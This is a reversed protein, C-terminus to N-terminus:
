KTIVLRQHTRNTDSIVSLFYLGSPLDSVNLQHSKQNVFEEHILIGEISLLQLVSGNLMEGAVNVMDKTPNPFVTLKSSKNLDDVSVHDNNFNFTPEMAVWPGTGNPLRGFSVDAVQEGFSISDIIGQNEYSLILTEGFTSSLQFNAHDEGEEGEEDAWIIMYGNPEITANPLEWKDLNAITDTLYLNATSIPFQTTNFLEIWDDFNGNGDAAVSENLASIENIVLDGPEIFSNLEYYEYAAREPSFRGASDNQAYVYYHLDNGIDTLTVGYTGDGSGGDNQTGDDFMSATSFPGTGGYRYALYVEQEDVLEATISVSGGLSINSTSPLVNSISPAGPFGTYTSLYVNRADMLDTLGPYNILDTVTSNLNNQFDDYGYFKNTDNLVSQDILNQLEAGRTAYLQNDFNEDMITRMHALYMRKYTDNEFLIRMLPREYVSVSNLHLLPDMTKAEDITFGDWHESADALRYSAFSMNLDWLIPQFHGHGDQYVYYNQAYGVYSDFNIVSYNFAHMWLTRDVNLLAEIETPHENLTDILHYLETWGNDSKLDYFSYYASSDTGFSNGLNANEGDFDLAAPNCKFFPGHNEGFHNNLFDDAVAEVNTYLGWYVDNIYVEAYNARSAPMYKRGIEYSMVERLFSPDQIVNSLKVKNFGDYDQGGYVHNLKINFPNKIRDTAVSSFGKYRIGVSDLLEGNIEVDCTLREEDGDVYFQDLIEDWNSEYFTIRIEQLSDTDYFSSQGFASNLCLIAILLSLGSKM